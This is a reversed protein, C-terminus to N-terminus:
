LCKFWFLVLAMTMAMCIGTEHSLFNRVCIKIFKEEEMHRHTILKHMWIALAMCFALVDLRFVYQMYFLMYLWQVQFLVLATGCYIDTVSRQLYGALFILQFICVYIAFDLMLM